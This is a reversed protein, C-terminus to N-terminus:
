PLAARGPREIDDDFLVPPRGDRRYEAEMLALEDWVCEGKAWIVRARQGVVLGGVKDAEPTNDPLGFFDDEGDIM